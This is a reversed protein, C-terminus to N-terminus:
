KNARNPAGSITRSFCREFVSPVANSRVMRSKGWGFLIGFYISIGAELKMLRQGRILM